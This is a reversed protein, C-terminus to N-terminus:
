DVFPDSPREDEAEAPNPAAPAEPATEAPGNAAPAERASPPVAAPRPPPAGPEARDDACWIKLKTPTYIGGSIVAVLGNWFNTKTHVQAARGGPGCVKDIDIDPSVRILGLLLHHHWRDYDPGRRVPVTSRAVTTRYCGSGALVALLLLLVPTLRSM